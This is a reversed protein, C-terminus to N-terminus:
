PIKTARVPASLLDSIVWRLVSASMMRQAMPLWVPFAAFGSDDPIGIGGRHTRRARHQWTHNWAAQPGLHACARQDTHVSVGSSHTIEDGHVDILSRDCLEARPLVM